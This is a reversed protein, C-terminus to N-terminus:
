ALNNYNEIDLKFNKLGLAKTHEKRAIEVLFHNLLHNLLKEKKNLSGVFEKEEFVNQSLDLLVNNGGDLVIGRLDMFSIARKIIKGDLRLELLENLNMKNQAPDFIKQLYEQSRLKREKLILDIITANNYFPKKNGKM